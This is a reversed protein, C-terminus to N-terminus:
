RVHWAEPLAERVGAILAPTGGWMVLASPFPAAQEGDSFRLRGRLFVISATDAVYTHWYATDTRAPMLMVVVAAHGQKVERTAKAVWRPLARGYPPNVFVRGCWPLVLGDDQVTYRMRAKVPARSRSAVPSCPDL